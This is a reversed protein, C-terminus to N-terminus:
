QWARMVSYHALRPIALGSLDTKLSSRFSSATTTVVIAVIPTPSPSMSAFVVGHGMAHHGRGDSPGCDWEDEAQRRAAELHMRCELREFSSMVFVVTLRAYM